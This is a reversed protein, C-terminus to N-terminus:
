AANRWYISMRKDRHRSCYEMFASAEVLKEKGYNMSPFEPDNFMNEVTHRSWHTMKVVDEITYFQLLKSEVNLKQLVEYKEIINDLINSLVNLDQIMGNIDNKM